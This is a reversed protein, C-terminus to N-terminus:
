AIMSSRFKDFLKSLEGARSFADKEAIRVQQDIMTILEVKCQEDVALGDIFASLSEVASYFKETRGSVPSISKIEPCKAALGGFCETRIAESFKKM